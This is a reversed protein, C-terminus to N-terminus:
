NDPLVRSMAQLGERIRALRDTENIEAMALLTQSMEQLHTNREREADLWLKAQQLVEHDSPVDHFTRLDLDKIRKLIYQLPLIIRHVRQKWRYDVMAILAVNAGIIWPLISLLAQLLLPRGSNWSQHVRYINDQLAAQLDAYIFVMGATFLLSEIIILGWLLRGQIKKDVFRRRRRYHHRALDNM